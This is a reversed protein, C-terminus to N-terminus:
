AEQKRYAELIKRVESPKVRQHVTDNVMIAPALGCTGFCRAVELTFLRDPTTQNVEIKLADRFADLVKPAGRVYCATGMCIRILYKGRPIRSFFSYFTVVGFVKSIPERLQESVRRLATESLYGLEQQLTQLVPILAGPRSAHLAVIRDVAAEEHAKETEPNCGPCRTEQSM